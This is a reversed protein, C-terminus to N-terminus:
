GTAGTAGTGGTAGTAGTAGSSAGSGTAVGEPIWYGRTTSTSDDDCDCSQTNVYNYTVANGAALTGSGEVVDNSNGAVVDVGVTVAVLTVQEGDQPNGNLTATLNGTVDPDLLFRVTDNDTETTYNRNTTIINRPRGLHPAPDATLYKSM